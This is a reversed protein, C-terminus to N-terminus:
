VIYVYDETWPKLMSVMKGMLSYCKQAVRKNGTTELSNKLKEYISVARQEQPLLKSKSKLSRYADQAAEFRKARFQRSAMKQMSTKTAPIQMGADKNWPISNEMVVFQDQFFATIAKVSKAKSVALNNTGSLVDYQRYLDELDTRDIPSAPIFPGDPDYAYMYLRGREALGAYMETVAQHDSLGDSVFGESRPLPISTITDYNKVATPVQRNESYQQAFTQAQRTSATKAATVFVHTPKVSDANFCATAEGVNEGTNTSNKALKIQVAGPRDSFQDVYEARIGSEKLADTLTSGLSVAEEVGSFVKDKVAAFQPFLATTARGGKGMILVQVNLNIGKRKAFDLIYKIQHSVYMPNSQDNNGPAFIRVVSGNQLNMENLRKEMLGEFSLDGGKPQMNNVLNYSKPDQGGKVLNEELKGSLTVISQFDFPIATKKPNDTKLTFEERVGAFATILNNVQDKQYFVPGNIQRDNYSILRNVGERGKLAKLTKSRLADALFPGNPVKSVPKSSPDVKSKDLADLSVEPVSGPPKLAPNSAKQGLFSLAAASASAAVIAVGQNPLITQPLTQLPKNDLTVSAM